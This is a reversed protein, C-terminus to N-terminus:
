IPGKRSVLKSSSRNFTAFGCIGCLKYVSFLGNKKENKLFRRRTTDNVDGAQRMCVAFHIELIQVALLRIARGLGVILAFQGVYQESAFKCLAQLASSHSDIGDMGTNNICLKSTIYLKKVATGALAHQEFIIM